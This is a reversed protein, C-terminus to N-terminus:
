VLAVLLNYLSTAAASNACAIQLVKYNPHGSLTNNDQNEARYEVNVVYYNTTKVSDYTADFNNPYGMGRYFDGTHGKTFVELNRIYKGEGASSVKGVNTVTVTSQTDWSTGDLIKLGVKFQIDYGQMKMDTTPQPKAIIYITPTAGDLKVFDFWPNGRQYVATTAAIETAWDTKETALLAFTSGTKDAITYPKGNSIVWVLDGNTRNAKDALAAAETTYVKVYGTKFNVYQSSGGEVRSFNFSLSKILEECVIDNTDSTVFAYSFPTLYEDLVSQSLFNQIRVLGEWTDGAAAGTVDVVFSAYAPVITTPAVNTVKKVGGAKLVDSTKVRGNVDKGVVIADVGAAAAASGDKKLVTVEGNSATAIFTAITTESAKDAAGTIFLDRVPFSFTSM